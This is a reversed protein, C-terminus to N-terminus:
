PPVYNPLTSTRPYRLEEYDAYFFTRDKGKYVKPIWVSGGASFSFNNVEKQPKTNSGYSKADFEANQYYWAGSGHLLNTGSKTITTIDGAAGYEATNGVGQENMKAIGEVSHFIEILPRNARVSQASIGDISSESQNPLGGQISLYNNNDSQAGPLTTITLYPSTSTSARLNTPLTLIRESGYSSAVTNTESAIVGAKSEVTVTQGVAGVKLTVDIRITQRALLRIDGIQEVQFGPQTVTVSYQGPKLNLAEYNGDGATIVEHSTNEDTNTIKVVAHSVFANSSDKVSGVIAGFTSQASVGGPLVALGLCAVLTQIRM